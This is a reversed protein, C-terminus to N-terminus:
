VRIAAIEKKRARVARDNRRYSKYYWGSRFLRVVKWARQVSVKYDRQLGQALKKKKPFTLDLVANRLL